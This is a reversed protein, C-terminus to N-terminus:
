RERADRKEGKKNEQGKYGNLMLVADKKAKAERPSIREARVFATTLLLKEHQLLTFDVGLLLFAETKEAVPKTADHSRDSLREAPKRDEGGLDTVSHEVSTIVPLYVHDLPRVNHESKGDTTLVLFDDRYRWTGSDCVEIPIIDAWHLQVYTGDPFLYAEFGSLHMPDPCYPTYHAAIMDEAKIDESMRRAM